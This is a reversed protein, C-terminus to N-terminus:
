TTSARDALAPLGDISVANKQAQYDGVEEPGKRESWEDLTPRDDEYRM